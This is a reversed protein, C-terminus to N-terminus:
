PKHQQTYIYDLHAILTRRMLCEEEGIGNCNDEVQTGEPNVKHQPEVKPQPRAASCLSFCLLAVIFFTRAKSM